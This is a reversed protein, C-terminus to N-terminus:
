KSCTSKDIGEKIKTIRSGLINLDPKLEIVKEYYEKSHQFSKCKNQIIKNSISLSDKTQMFENLLKEETMGKLLYNNALDLYLGISDKKSFVKSKGSNFLNVIDIIDNNIQIYDSINVSQVAFYRSNNLLEKKIEYLKIKLKLEEQKNQCCKDLTDITDSYVSLM